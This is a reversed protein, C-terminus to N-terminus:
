TKTLAATGFNVSFRECWITVAQYKSLDLDSPLEYNQDGVNGKMSGVSVYGVRRVTADDTADAAAVLTVHVDPGNSTSFGTLRLVRRGDVEVISATGRTEHAHSHFQGSAITRAAASAGGAAATPPAESVRADVVLLEPRFVWWAAVLTVVLVPVAIVLLRRSSM